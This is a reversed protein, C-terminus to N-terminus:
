QWAVGRLGNIVSDAATQLDALTTGRIFVFWYRALGAKPAATMVLQVDRAGAILHVGNQHQATWAGAQTSPSPNSRSFQQVAYVASEASDRLLFGVAGSGDTAYVM